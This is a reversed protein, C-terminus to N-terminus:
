LKDSEGVEPFAYLIWERCKFHLLAGALDGLIM